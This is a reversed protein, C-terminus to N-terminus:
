GARSKAARAVEEHFNEVRGVGSPCRKGGGIYGLVMADTIVVIEKEAAKGVMSLMAMHAVKVSELSKNRAFWDLTKRYGFLVEPNLREKLVAFDVKNSEVGSKLLWVDENPNFGGGNKMQSREPLTWSLAVPGGKGGAENKNGM